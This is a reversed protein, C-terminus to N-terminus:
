PLITKIQQNLCAPATPHPRHLTPLVEVVPHSMCLCCSYRQWAPIGTAPRTSVQLADALSAGPAAQVAASSADSAAAESTSAHNSLPSLLMALLIRMLQARTLSHQVLNLFLKPLQQKGPAQSLKVLQALRFLDAEDM